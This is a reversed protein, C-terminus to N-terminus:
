FAKGHTRRIVAPKLFPLANLVLIVPSLLAESGFRGQLLRGMHMRRRFHGNWNQAFTTEMETRSIKGKLFSSGAEFAMKASHMAMSMGNGSLPPILGASDGLCLMGSTVASRKQFSIGSIALPKPYLFEAERWITKLFPNRALVTEELQAISNGARRLAEGRVLYCLCLRDEEVRSIGCYGGSFHHLAILDDPHGAYRIHHKIGVWGDLVPDTKRLFSRQLQVDLNSKKGWSGLVIKGSFAGKTTYMEFGDGSEQSVSEVKTQTFIQAGAKKACDSLAADFAYRSLGFGGLPLQASLTKGGTTSLLFRNIQPLGETELGIDKLFPESERSIYEGCVKHRPYSEKEFVAVSFGDRAFLTAASLGAIGGGIILVEFHQAM